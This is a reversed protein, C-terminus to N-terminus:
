CKGPTALEVAQRECNNPSIKYENQKDAIAVRGIKPITQRKLLM